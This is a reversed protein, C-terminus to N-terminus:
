QMARLAATDSKRPPQKQSFEPKHPLLSNQKVAEADPLKEPINGKNTIINSFAGKYL